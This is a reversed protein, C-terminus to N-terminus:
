RQRRWDRACILQGREYDVYLIEGCNFVKYTGNEGLEALRAARRADASPADGTGLLGLRRDTFLRRTRAQLWAVLLLSGSALSVVSLLFLFLTV